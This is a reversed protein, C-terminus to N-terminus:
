AVAARCNENPTAETSIDDEHIPCTENVVHCSMPDVSIIIVNHEKANHKRTRIALFVGYRLAFSNEPYVTPPDPYRLYGLVWDTRASVGYPHLSERRVIIHAGIPLLRRHAEFFVLKIVEAGNRTLSYCGQHDIYQRGFSDSTDLSVWPGDIDFVAYPRYILPAAGFGMSRVASWWDSLPVLKDEGICAGDPGLIITCAGTGEEDLLPYRRGQVLEPMRGNYIPFTEYADPRKGNYLIGYLQVWSGLHMVDEPPHNGIVPPLEAMIGCQMAGHDCLPRIFYEPRDIMSVSSRMPVVEDNQHEFSELVIAETPCSQVTCCRSLIFEALNTGFTFMNDAHLECDGQLACLVLHQVINVWVKTGGPAAANGTTRVFTCNQFIDKDTPSRELGGIGMRSAFRTYDLM